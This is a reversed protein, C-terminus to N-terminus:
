KKKPKKEAKLGESKLRTRESSVVEIILPTKYVKGKEKISLEVVFQGTKKIKDDDLNVEIDFPKLQRVQTKLVDVVDKAEIADYLTGTKSAKREFTLKKNDVFKAPSKVFQELFTEEKKAVEKTYRKAEALTQVDQQTARRALGRPILFNVAYGDKVNVIQGKKGLSNIDQLLVLKIM